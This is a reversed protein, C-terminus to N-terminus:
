KELEKKLKRFYNFASDPISIEIKPNLKVTAM